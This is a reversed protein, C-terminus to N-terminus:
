RKKRGGGAVLLVIGLGLAGGSAWPPVPLTEQKEATAEIPGVQLVKERHTYPIERYALGLAGALILVIGLIRIM